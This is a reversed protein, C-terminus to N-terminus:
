DAAQVHLRYKDLYATAKEGWGPISEIRELALNCTSCLLGRRCKDCARGAQPCCKHDHDIHFRNGAGKPVTTGCIACGGGQDALQIEYWERSASYRDFHLEQSRKKVYTKNATRWDLNKKRNLEPPRPNVKWREASALGICLKCECRRGDSSFKTKYFDLVSKEIGCRACIKVLPLNSALAHKVRLQDYYADTCSKCRSEFGDRERVNRTFCSYPLPIRCIRCTKLTSEAQTEITQPYLTAPSPAM